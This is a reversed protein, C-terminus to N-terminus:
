RNSNEVARTLSADIMIFAILLLPAGSLVPEIFFQALMTIMYVVVGVKYENAIARVRVIKRVNNVAMGTFVIMSLYAALGADDFIDLWLEHAFGVGEGISIENGGFLHDLFLSLYKFKRSFREDETLRDAGYYEVRKFLYSSEYWNKLGFMNQNYMYVAVCVMIILALVLLIINRNSKRTPSRLSYYVYGIVGLAISMATLVLFSRGGLQIDYLLAAIFVSIGLLKLKVKNQLFIMWFSVSVFLTFYIAQGTASSITGTFVDYSLGSIMNTGSFMNFMFNALGHAAMGTGLYIMLRFSDDIDTDSFRYVASWIIPFLFLKIHTLSFVGHILGSFLYFSSFLFLVYVQRKKNIRPHLTLMVISLLMLVYIGINGVNSIGISSIILFIWSYKQVNNEREVKYGSM